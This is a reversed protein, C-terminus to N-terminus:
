TRVGSSTLAYRKVFQIVYDNVEKPNSANLFHKGGEVIELRADPSNKFLGIEEKANEVSYAADDTGQKPDAEINGSTRKCIM